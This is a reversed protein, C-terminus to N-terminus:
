FYKALVERTQEGTKVWSFQNARELSALTLESRLQSNNAITTMAATIEETQYPNVLIAADGTIEPLSALNSTIVPTGCGMAELAPLGFGEWLTPFVLAIAQNIVIPLQEYAVYDLFRIRDQIGLETAQKQLKPTYRRDPSGALWLQYDKSNPMAAFAAILRHLNKYPDHRGIYLFYQYNNDKQRPNLPRFHKEDYALLISTIKKPSIGCFERIDKATAESNCIIHEAQQLVLPVIYRFYYSLPSGSQLFRLPILDHCMVIYRCPSYLPAETVPSFLLSANLQQYIKPLQWQTWLLRRLHGRSGQAPTLNDPIPYCNFDPIPKAILLTPELYKLHPVINAAYTSIGTPQTLLFSLNILISNAL